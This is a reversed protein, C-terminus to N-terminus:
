DSFFHSFLSPSKPAGRGFCCLVRGIAVIDNPRPWSFCRNPTDNTPATPCELDQILRIAWAVVTRLEHKPSWWPASSGPGLGLVSHHISWEPESAGIDIANDNDDWHHDHNLLDNNENSCQQCDWSRLHATIPPEGIRFVWKKPHNCIYIYIYTWPFVWGGFCSNFIKSAGDNSDAMIFCSDAHQVM